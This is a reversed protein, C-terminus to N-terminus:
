QVTASTPTYGPDGKTETTVPDASSNVQVGAFRDYGSFATPGVLVPSTGKQSTSPTLSVQFAAQAVGGQAFDGASWTVTRSTDDYTVSGTGATKNIFTVYSPLIASVTAGAIASGEDQANWVITYTTPTNIRPPIPGTNSFPGSSHLSSASLAVSTSVKATQTASASVQEPVNSQGIRTGLVSITFAVQPSHVAPNSPLTSFTFSGIGSAGPALSGLAPDTDRSFVVTHDSSRYFGNTTLVSAYDIAAGSLQVSVSANTVNSTLTNTYSITVSQRSGSTVVPNPASGGNLTLTTAIFPAAIAVTADQTMYTIAVASDTPSKATGVTFHFVRQESDQGSLVGTLMITKSAGPAMTGLLFANGSMPVSSSTVSFGFPLTSALVVNELPVSANSRVTLALQLPKGSVTEALTDVSVSLPTSTVALAYSLKKVFVANSGRTGFSLSVPLTLAQGAGGFVVAKISRTVTEGSALTGLNETYRPYASLVNDASRTGDPFDVEITANDIAAPNRNTIAISIPVTDGGAITTPGQLNVAVNNVSVTNGGYYFLYGAVGTAAVFFLAAVGFFIGAFRVHRRGRAHTDPLPETEWAHRVSHDGARVLAARADHSVAGPSYLGRRARELSSLNDEPPPM